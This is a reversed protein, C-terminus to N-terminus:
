KRGYKERWTTLIEDETMSPNHESMADRFEPFFVLRKSEPNYGSLPTSRVYKGVAERWGDIKGTERRYRDAVQAIESEREAVAMQYRLTAQNAERINKANGYLDRARQADGETQVGKQAALEDFVLKGQAAKYQNLNSIQNITTPSIPVGLDSFFSNAAARFDQTPGTIAPNDIMARLRDHRNLAEQGKSLVDQFAKGEVEGFAKEAATEFRQDGTNVQVTPKQPRPSIGPVVRPQGTTEDTQFFVEKGDQMGAEPNTFKPVIGAAAGFRTMSEQALKRVAEPQAAIKDFSGAGYQQDIEQILDPAFQRMAGVPDESALVAQSIRYRQTALTKQMTADHTAQDRRENNEAGTIQVGLLRDRLADTASQRRMGKIAEATQFVQGLNATKFEPM